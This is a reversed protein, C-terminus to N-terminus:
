PNVGPPRRHCRRASPVSAVVFLDIMALAAVSVNLTVPNFAAGFSEPSFAAAGLALPMAILCLWAPWARSWGFILLAALALEAAGLVTVAHATLHLPVGTAAILATEDPHRLILKPVLGQYAFVAALAIRAVAHVLTHRATTRPDIGEEIWLRLRDFSWATAWGLLPRFIMRDFIEGMAGFRTRYDYWTLFRIGDPTPVYKWYGGGERIISLPSDSAFTLASTASGDPLDRRGTTEGEGSVELGFGIRTAYRFRQPGATTDRALYEISSFRLDWQEHLAPTQTNVWLADLPARVLIEVYISM